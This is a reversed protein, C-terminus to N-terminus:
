EQNFSEQGVFDDANGDSIKEIQDVDKQKELVEQHRFMIKENEEYCELKLKKIPRGESKETDLFQIMAPTVPKLYKEADDYGAHDKVAKRAINEVFDDSFDVTIKYKDYYSASMDGLKEAVIYAYEEETFDGFHVQEAFKLQDRQDTNNRNSILFLTSSVNHEVYDGSNNDYLRLVGNNNKVEELRDIISSDTLNKFVLTTSTNNLLKKIVPNTTNFITDALSLEIKEKAGNELTRTIIRS